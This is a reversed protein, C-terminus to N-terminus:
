TRPRPLHDALELLHLQIDTWIQYGPAIAAPDDLTAITVRVCDDGDEITCISTGCNRCFGRQIGPPSQYFAPEAGTFAFTARSTARAV